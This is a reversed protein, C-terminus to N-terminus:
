GARRGEVCEGHCFDKRSFGLGWLDWSELKGRLTQLFPVRGENTRVLWRSPVAAM